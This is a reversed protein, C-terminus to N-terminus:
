FEPDPNGSALMSMGPHYNHMSFGHYMLDEPDTSVKDDEPFTMELIRVASQFELATGYKVKMDRSDRSRSRLLYFSLGFLAFTSASGLLFYRANPSLRSKNTPKESPRAPAASDTVYCRHPRNAGLVTSLIRSRSTARLDHSLTTFTCRM